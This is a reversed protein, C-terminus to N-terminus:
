EQLYQTLTPHMGFDPITQFGQQGSFIGRVSGDKNMVFVPYGPHGGSWWDEDVAVSIEGEISDINWELIAEYARNKENVAFGLHKIEGIETIQQVTFGLWCYRSCRSNSGVPVFRNTKKIDYVFAEELLERLGTMSLDYGEDYNAVGAFSKFWHYREDPVVLVGDQYTVMIVAGGRYLGPPALTDFEKDFATPMKAEKIFSFIEGNRVFIPIGPDDDTAQPLSQLFNKQEETLIIDGINTGTPTQSGIIVNM